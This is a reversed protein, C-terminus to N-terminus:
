EFDCQSPCIAPVPFKYIADSFPAEKLTIRSVIPVMRFQALTEVKRVRFRRDSTLDVVVDRATCYPNAIVRATTVEDDDITGRMQQDMNPFHGFPESDFWFNEIGPWFGGEFRTGCCSPCDSDICEGTLQDICLPCLPGSRKEQLLYGQNAVGLLAFRLYEKRVIEQFLGWTFPPLNGFVGATPSIYINGPRNEPGPGPAATLVVRFFLTLEKGSELGLEDNTIFRINTGVIPAGVNTWTANPNDVEAVQVQISYVPIDNFLPQYEWYIRTTNRFSYDVTVRTFPNLGYPDISHIQEPM